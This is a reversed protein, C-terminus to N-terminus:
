CLSGIKIAGEFCTDCGGELTCTRCTSIGAPGNYASCLNCVGNPSQYVGEGQCSDICAGIGSSYIKAPDSCESCTIHPEAHLCKNCGPIIDSCEHTNGNLKVQTELVFNPDTPDTIRVCTPGSMEAGDYCDDCSGSATPQCLEHETLPVCTPSAPNSNDLEYREICETCVGFFNLTKCFQVTPLAKTCTGHTTSLTKGAATCDAQPICYQTGSEIVHSPDACKHCISNISIACSRINLEFNLEFNLVPPSGTSVTNFM